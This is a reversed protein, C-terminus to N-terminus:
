LDNLAQFTSSVAQLQRTMIPWRKVTGIQFNDSFHKRLHDNSRPDHNQFVGPVLQISWKDRFWRADPIGHSFPVTCREHLSQFLAIMSPISTNGSGSSRDPLSIRELHKGYSRERPDLSASNIGCSFLVKFWVVDVIGDNAYAKWSSPARQNGEEFGNIASKDHM